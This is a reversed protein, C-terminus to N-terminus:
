RRDLMGSDSRDVDAAMAGQLAAKGPAAGVSSLVCFCSYVRFRSESDLGKAVAASVRVRSPVFRSCQGSNSEDVEWEQWQKLPMPLGHATTTSAAAKSNM